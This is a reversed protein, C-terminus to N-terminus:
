ISSQDASRQPPVGAVSLNRIAGGANETESEEETTEGNNERALSLTVLHGFGYEDLANASRNDLYMLFLKLQNQSGLMYNVQNCQEIQKQVLELKRQQLDAIREPETELELVRSVELEQGITTNLNELAEDVKKMQEILHIEISIRGIWGEAAAGEEEHREGLYAMMMECEAMAGLYFNASGQHTVEQELLTTSHPRLFDVADTNGAKTFHELLQAVEFRAGHVNYAQEKKPEVELKLEAIRKELYPLQLIQSTEYGYLEGHLIPSAGALTIEVGLGQAVGLWFHVGTAQYFYESQSGMHFGWIEIHEFGEYLALACMYDFSSRFYGKKVADLWAVRETKGVPVAYMNSFFKETIAELPYKESSPVQEYTDQMYIPFNHELALWEPHRPDNPNNLRSWDEELHMQFWRDARFGDKSKMFTDGTEPNNYAENCGWIELNRKDYPALHRSDSAFGCLAVGKPKTLRTKRQATITDEWGVKPYDLNGRLEATHETETM